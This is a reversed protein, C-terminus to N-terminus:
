PLLKTEFDGDEGLATAFGGGALWRKATADERLYADWFALSAM